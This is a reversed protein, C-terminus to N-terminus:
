LEITGAPVVYWRGEGEVELAADDFRSLDEDAKVAIIAVMPADTYRSPRVTHLEGKLLKAVKAFTSPRPIYDAAIKMLRSGKPVPKLPTVDDRSGGWANIPTDPFVAFGAHRARLEKLKNPTVEESMTARIVGFTRVTTTAGEQQLKECIKLLETTDVKHKRLTIQSKEATSDIINSVREIPSFAKIEECQQDTLFGHVISMDTVHHDRVSMHRQPDAMGPIDKVAATPLTMRYLERREEGEEDNNDLKVKITNTLPTIITAREKAAESATKGPETITTPAFKTMIMVPHKGSCKIFIIHQARQMAQRVYAREWELAARVTRYAENCRVAYTAAAHLTHGESPRLFPITKHRKGTIPDVPVNESMKDTLIFVDGRKSNNNNFKGVQEAAVQAIQKATDNQQQTAPTTTQKKAPSSTADTTNSASKSAAKKQKNTTGPKTTKTGPQTTQTRRVANMLRKSFPAM